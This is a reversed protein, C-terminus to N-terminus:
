SNFKLLNVFDKLKNSVQSSDTSELQQFRSDESKSKKVRSNLSKLGHDRLELSTHTGSKLVRCVGLSVGLKQGTKIRTVAVTRPIGIRM